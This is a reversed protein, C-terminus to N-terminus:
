TRGHPPRGQARVSSPRAPDPNVRLASLTRRLNRSLTIGNAREFAQQARRWLPRAAELTAMGHPTLRVVRSRGDTPSPGVEILGALALPQMNKGTTTRDLDLRDALDNISAGGLQRLVALISYQTARVGAPALAEDYFNSIRRAAKRLSM